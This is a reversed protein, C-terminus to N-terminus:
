LLPVPLVITATHASPLVDDETLDITSLPDVHVNWAPTFLPVATRESIHVVPTPPETAEADKAMVKDLAAGALQASSSYAPTCLRPAVAM